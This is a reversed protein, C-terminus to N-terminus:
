EALISIIKIAMENSPLYMGASANNACLDGFCPTHSDTMRSSKHGASCLIALSM